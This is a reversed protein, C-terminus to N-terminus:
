LASAQKATMTQRARRITGDSNCRHVRRPVNVSGKSLFHPRQGAAAGVACLTDLVNLLLTNAVAKGFDRHKFVKEFVKLGVFKSGAYGKGIKYDLFAVSLGTYAFYKFVIIFAMPLLLLAYLQWDRKLYYLFGKKKVSIADPSLMKSKSQGM